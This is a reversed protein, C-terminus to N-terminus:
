KKDCRLYNKKDSEVLQKFTLLGNISKETMPYSDSGNMRNQLERLFEKNFTM